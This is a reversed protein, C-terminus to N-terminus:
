IVYTVLLLSTLTDHAVLRRTWAYGPRVLRSQSAPGLCPQRKPPAAGAAPAEPAAQAVAPQAAAAAAAARAQLLRPGAAAAPGAESVAPPETASEEISHSALALFDLVIPTRFRKTGYRTFSEPRAIPTTATPRKRGTIVVAALRLRGM